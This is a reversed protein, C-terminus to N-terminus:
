RPQPIDARPETRTDPSRTSHAWTELAPAAARLVRLARVGRLLLAPSRLEHRPSDVVVRLVAFPRGRAAGALWATEMDVANAGTAAFLASREDGRVLHDAGVLTGTQADLGHARLADVLGAADAAHATGDPGIVSAPAVITGPLLEPDLSGCVGAVALAAASAPDHNAAAERARAPGAGCREVRANAGRLGARVAAAELALPAWVLLGPVTM